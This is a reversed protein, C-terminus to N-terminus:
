SVLDEGHSNVLEVLQEKLPDGLRMIDDVRVVEEFVDRGSVETSEIIVGDPPRITSISSSIFMVPLDGLEPLRDSSVPFHLADLIQAVGTQKSMVIHMALYHLVFRRVEDSDQNRDALLEKFRGPAFGSYTLVWKFPLTVTVKKSEQAAKAVHIYEVPTMELATNIIEIPPKLEKSLNFPKSPAVAEYLSQLEKFAKDAGRATEKTGSHVYDGLVTKPRLLPALTTLYEKMQGRLHDSVARTLRRLVLLRQIDYREEMIINKSRKGM